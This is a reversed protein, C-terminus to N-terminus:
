YSVMSHQFKMSKAMDVLFPNASEYGTISILQGDRLERNNTDIPVTLGQKYDVARFTTNNKELGFQRTDGAKQSYLNGVRLWDSDTFAECGYKHCERSHFIVYFIAAVLLIIILSQWNEM